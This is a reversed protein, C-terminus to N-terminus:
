RTAERARLEGRMFGHGAGCMRNCEFEFRGAREARFLVAVTGQGRKPIVASTSTGAIRFGHMTDESSLRIEIEEGAALEIESPWFEFREATVDVVRRGGTQGAAPATAYSAAVGVLVATALCRSLVTRM